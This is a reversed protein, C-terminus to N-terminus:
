KVIGQHSQWHFDLGLLDRPRVSMRGPNEGPGSLEAELWHLGSVVMLLFSQPTILRGLLTEDGCGVVVLCASRDDKEQWDM